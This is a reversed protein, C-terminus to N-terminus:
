LLEEPIEDSGLIWIICTGYTTTAATVVALSLVTLIGKERIKSLLKM